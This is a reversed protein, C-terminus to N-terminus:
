LRCPPKPYKYLVLTPVSLAPYPSASTSIAEALLRLTATMLFKSASLAADGSPPLSANTFSPAGNNAYNFLVRDNVILNHAASSTTTLKGANAGSADTSVASISHANVNQVTGAQNKTENQSEDEIQVTVNVGASGKNAVDLEIAISKKSDPVSYIVTPLTSDASVNRIVANKFNNAM